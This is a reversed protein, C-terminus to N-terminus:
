KPRLRQHESASLEISQPNKSWRDGFVQGALSCVGKRRDDNLCVAGRTMRLSLSVLPTDYLTCHVIHMIHVIYTCQVIYLACYACQVIHVIYTSHVTCMAKERWPRHRALPRCIYASKRPRCFDRLVEYFIYNCCIDFNAARCTMLFICWSSIKSFWKEGALRKGM